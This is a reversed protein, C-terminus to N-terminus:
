EVSVTVVTDKKPRFMKLVDKVQSVLLGRDPGHLSVCHRFKGRMIATRDEQPELIIVDKLDKSTLVDYLNKAQNCALEPDASRVVISVLAQFPPLGMERRLAAEHHYFDDANDSALVHLLPDAANRTQCLVHELTMQRLHALFAFASHSAQYDHKHLEWDIDLVATLNVKLTARYRFIAQTAVLVDFHVPLASSAKDYGAVVAGPFHKKVEDMVGAVGRAAQIYLLVTRKEKMMAEIHHRLGLSVFTGKKMKFNSLDLFKVGALPEELYILAVEKDQVRQWMEVSPASSVCVVDCGELRAREFAVERAHYFPSQDNRYFSSEEDMIVILALDKVPAFAASIFGVALRVAGSRISLWRTYEEKDTGHSFLVRENAKILPGLKPLVDHCRSSEPLLVLVGKGDNLTRAIRPLLIDWRKSQGRDFILEFKPQNLTSGFAPAEFKKNGRLYAPLFLELAEGATCAFRAAFSDALKLFAPSFVPRDDLVKILTSLVGQHASMDLLKVIIGVRKKGAFRVLVRAGAVARPLLDEPILYDFPGDVPVGVVVQAISPNM